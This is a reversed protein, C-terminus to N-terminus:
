KRTELEKKCVVLIPKLSFLIMHRLVVNGFCQKVEETGEKADRQPQM